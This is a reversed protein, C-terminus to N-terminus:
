YREGPLPVDAPTPAASASDYCEQGDWAQICKRSSDRRQSFGIVFALLIGGITLFVALKANDDPV